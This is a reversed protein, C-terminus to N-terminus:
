QVLKYLCKVITIYCQLLRRHSNNYYILLGQTATAQLALYFHIVKGVIEESVVVEPAAVWDGGLTHLEWAMM